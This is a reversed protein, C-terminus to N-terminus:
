DKLWDITQETLKERQKVQELTEGLNSEILQCEKVVAKHKKIKNLVTTHMVEANEELTKWNEKLNARLM